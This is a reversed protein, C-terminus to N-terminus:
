PTDAAATQTVFTVRTFGIRRAADMVRVVSQHSAQADASIVVVPDKRGAATKLMAESLAPVDQGALGSDNVRYNGSADVDVAIQAPVDKASDGKAEPLNIQLEAFRAYTTTVMLFILIVLLVDILPILNIEPEDRGVGRQFNV